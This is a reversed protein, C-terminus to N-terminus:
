IFMSILVKSDKWNKLPVDEKELEAYDEEEFYGIEFDEEVEDEELLRRQRRRRWTQKCGWPSNHMSLKNWQQLNCTTPICAFGPELVFSGPRGNCNNTHKLNGIFKMGLRRCQNAINRM